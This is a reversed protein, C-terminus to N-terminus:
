NCIISVHKEFDVERIDVVGPWLVRGLKNVITLNTVEWGELNDYIYDYGKSLNIKNQM